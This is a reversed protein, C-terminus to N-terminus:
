ILNVAISEVEFVAILLSYICVILTSPTVGVGVGTGVTVVVVVVGGGALTVVGTTLSLLVHGFCFIM